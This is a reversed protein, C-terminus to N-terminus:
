VAVPVDILIHYIIIWSYKGLEDKFPFDQAYQFPLVGGHTLSMATPSVIPHGGFVRMVDEALDAAVQKPSREDGAVVDAYIKFTLPIDRLERKTTSDGTMRALAKPEGTEMVCYPFPQHPTAESDHLVPFSDSNVSANWLSKFITNLGSGDWATVISEHIDATGIM